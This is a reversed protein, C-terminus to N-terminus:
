CAARRHHDLLQRLEGALVVLEERRPLVRLERAAGAPAADVVDPVGDHQPIREDGELLHRAERRPAGVLQRRREPGGVVHGGVEHLAVFAGFRAPEEVQRERLEVGVAVRHREGGGRVCGPAARAPGRRPVGGSRRCRPTGPAARRGRRRGRAACAAWALRSSLSRGPSTTIAGFRPPRATTSFCSRPRDPLRTSASVCCRVITRQAGSSKGPGIRRRAFTSSGRGNAGRLGLKWRAATASSRRRGSM